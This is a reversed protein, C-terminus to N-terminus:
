SWPINSSSYIIGLLSVVGRPCLIWSLNLDPLFFSFYSNYVPPAIGGKEFFNKVHFHTKLPKFDTFFSIKLQQMCILRHEIWISKKEQTKFFNISEVATFHFIHTLEIFTHTFHLSFNNLVWLKIVSKYNCSIIM